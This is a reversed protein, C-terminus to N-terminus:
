KAKRQVKGEVVRYDYKDPEYSWGASRVSSEITAARGRGTLRKGEVYNLVNTLTRISSGPTQMFGGGLTEYLREREDKSLNPDKEVMKRVDALLLAQENKFDIAPTPINSAAGVVTEGVRSAVGLPGVVGGAMAGGQILQAMRSVRRKVSDVTSEGEARENEAKIDSASAPPRLQEGGATAIPVAETKGDKGIRFKYFRGDAGQVTDSSAPMNVTVGPQRSSLVEIRRQIMARAPHGQPYQEMTKMLKVIEPSAETHPAPPAEALLKNDPGFRRAGPALTYPEAAKQTKILGDLKSALEIAKPSGHSLLAKIAAQPDGGTQQMVGRLAVEDKRSQEAQQQQLMANKLTMFQGAQQLPSEIQPMRFGMAIDTNLPM